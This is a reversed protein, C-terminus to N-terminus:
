SEDGMKFIHDVLAFRRLKSVGKQANKKKQITKKRLRIIYGVNAIM